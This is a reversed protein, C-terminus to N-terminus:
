SELGRSEQDKYFGKKFLEGKGGSSGKYQLGQKTNKHKKNRVKRFATELFLYLYKRLWGFELLLVCNKGELFRARCQNCPPTDVLDLRFGRWWQKSRFMTIYGVVILM